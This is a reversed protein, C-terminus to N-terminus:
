GDCARVIAYQSAVHRTKWGRSSPGIDFGCDEPSPRETWEFEQQTYLQPAATGLIPCEFLLTTRDDHGELEIFRIDSMAQLWLPTSGRASSKGMFAMRISRSLMEPILRILEGVAVAPPREGYRDQSKLCVPTLVTANM